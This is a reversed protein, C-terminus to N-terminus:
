SSSTRRQMVIRRLAKVEGHSPTRNPKGSWAPQSRECATGAALMAATAALMRIGNPRLVDRWYRDVWAAPDGSPALDLPFSEEALIPGADLKAAVRHITIGVHDVGHYLEWFAPPSGRFEPVKGCHLNISGLRPLDFISERLIYTGDVVGLDPAMRELETICEADHFDNFRLVPVGATTRELPAPGTREVREAVRRLIFVAAGIPGRRRVLTRLRSRFSGRRHPALVVAAVDIGPTDAIMDATEFGIDSCTLVVVRFAADGMTSGSGDPRHDTPPKM